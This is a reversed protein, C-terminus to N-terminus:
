NCISLFNLPGWTHERAFLVVRRRIKESQRKHWECVEGVVEARLECHFLSKQTKSKACYNESRFGFHSAGTSHFIKINTQLVRGRMKNRVCAELVPQTSPSIHFRDSRASNFTTSDYSISATKTALALTSQTSKGILLICFFNRQIFISSPFNNQNKSDLLFATLKHKFSSITILISYIPWVKSKEAAWSLLQEPLTDVLRLLVDRKSNVTSILIM